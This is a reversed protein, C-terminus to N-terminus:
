GAHSRRRSSRSRPKKCRNFKKFDALLSAILWRTAFGGGVALFVTFFDNYAIMVALGILRYASLGILRYMPPTVLIGLLMLVISKLTIQVSLESRKSM